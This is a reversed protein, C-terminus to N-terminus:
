EGVARLVSEILAPHYWIGQAVADHLIPRLAPVLGLAKARALLGLSGTVRLGSALAARRGKWDDLAVWRVGLEAALQIVAAEGTDLGAIALASHPAHLDVVRLWPPVLRQHGTAEGQDLEVRVERPCVFELPLRGVIDLCQVRQLVILPGTNTVILEPM